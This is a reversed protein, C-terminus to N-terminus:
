SWEIAQICAAAWFFYVFRRGTKKIWRVPSNALYIVAVQFGVINLATAIRGSLPVPYTAVVLIQLNKQDTIPIM